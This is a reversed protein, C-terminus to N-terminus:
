GRPGASSYRPGDECKALESDFLHIVWGIFVGYDNVYRGSDCHIAPDYPPNVTALPTTDKPPGTPRAPPPVTPRVCSVASAPVWAPASQEVQPWNSLGPVVVRFWTEGNLSSSKGTFVYRGGVPPQGVIPSDTSPGSHAGGPGTYYVFGKDPLSDLCDFGRLTLSYTTTCTSGGASVTGEGNSKLSGDPQRRLERFADAFMPSQHIQAFASEVVPGCYSARGWTTSVDVAQVSFTNQTPTYSGVLRASFTGPTVWVFSSCGPYSMSRQPTSGALTGTLQGRQDAYLTLDAVGHTEDRTVGTCLHIWEFRGHWSPQPPQAQQALAASGFATMAILAIPVATCLRSGTESRTM